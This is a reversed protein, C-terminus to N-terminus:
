AFVDPQIQGTTIRKRLNGDILPGRANSCSDPEVIVLPLSIANRYM